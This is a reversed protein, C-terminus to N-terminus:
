IRYFLRGSVNLSRYTKCPKKCTTRYVELRNQRVIFLSANDNTKEILASIRCIEASSDRMAAGQAAFLHADDPLVANGETLHLTRIFANRLEDLFFLPGGLFVIKGRIPKGCALGSITQIVIAQFVSAAIDEKTAGSNILSQIDSKAFVGCRAAIPYINKFNRAHKNLGEVDEGLLLAMQDIFAGTGGACVGNMRQEVGNTLYIIKADEGGLEIAVDADPIFAKLATNEAIVEQVFPIKLAEAIGMGGSGTIVPIVPIDGFKLVVEKIVSKLTDAINSHHRRYESFVIRNDDDVLVAKVTTSGLDFGLRFVHERKEDENQTGEIRSNVSNRDM